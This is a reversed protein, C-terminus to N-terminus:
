LGVGLWRGGQFVGVAILYAVTSNFAMSFLGWKWSGSEKVICTVTALCPTYLMIFVMVTFATLRNWRPDAALVDSLTVSKETALKGLSYATGLSSIILEKAAFGGLLAINLRWDFNCWQTLGELRAGLRGGFSNRLVALAETHDIDELERRLPKLDDALTVFDSKELAEQTM